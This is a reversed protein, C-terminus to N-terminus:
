PSPSFYEWHNEVLRGAPFLGTQEAAECFWNPRWFSGSYLNNEVACFGKCASKLTCRQCVGELRGPMGQRLVQLVPHQNWISALSDAGAQGLVFGPASHTLGCLAYEGSATLSISNLISCRLQWAAFAGPTFHPHLGRFVPPMDCLLQVRTNGALEREIRWGTAILEAVHLDSLPRGGNSGCGARGPDPQGPQLVTFIISAGGLEEVLRILAQIQSANRRRLTFVVQAPLGGEALTRVARTATNFAGPRGHIGDHTAAEAGDLAIWVSAQPMHALRQASAPTIGAGDTEVAANLELTELRNLLADLEPYLLVGRGSLRVRVLGLPLAERLAEIALGSLLRAGLKAESAPLYHQRCPRCTLSCGEGLHINLQTLPEVKKALDSM